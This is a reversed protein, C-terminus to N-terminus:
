GGAPGPGPPRRSRSVEPFTFKSELLLAYTHCGLLVAAIFALTPLLDPHAECLLAVCACFDALQARPPAPGLPPM